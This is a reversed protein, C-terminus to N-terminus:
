APNQNLSVPLLHRIREESVDLGTVIHGRELLYAINVTGVHGLGVVCIKM